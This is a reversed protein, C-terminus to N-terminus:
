VVKIFEKPIFRAISSNIFPLRHIVEGSLKLGEM